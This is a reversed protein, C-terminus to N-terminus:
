RPKNGAKVADAKYYQLYARWVAGSKALKEMMDLLIQRDAEDLSKKSIYIGSDQWDIEALPMYRIQENMDSVRTDSAVSGSFIYPAMITAEAAGVKLTRAVSIPDAEIILRHQKHLQDLIVRYEKGYDFGRVVAVRMKKYQLLGNFDQILPHHPNVSILTARTYILPIFIGSEDRKETKIAPFLLDAQGNEFLLEMRARPVLSFQFQCQEKQSIHRFLDPFIGSYQNDAVIVSYGLAAVPVNIQRSCATAEVGKSLCVGYLLSLLWNPKM